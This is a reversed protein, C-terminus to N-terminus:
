LFLIPMIMQRTNVCLVVRRAQGHYIPRLCASFSLLFVLVLACSGEVSM